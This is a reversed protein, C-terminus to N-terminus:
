WLWAALVRLEVKYINFMDLRKMREAAARDHKYGTKEKKM